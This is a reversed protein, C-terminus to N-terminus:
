EHMRRNRVKDLQLANVVLNGEQARFQFCEGLTDTFRFRFKAASADLDGGCFLGVGLHERLALLEFEVALLPFVAGAFVAILAAVYFGGFGKFSQLMFNGIGFGFDGFGIVALEFHHHGRFLDFM